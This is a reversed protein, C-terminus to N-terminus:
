HKRAKMIKAAIKDLEAKGNPKLLMGFTTQGDQTGCNEVYDAAKLQKCIERIVKGSAKSTCPPQCGRRFKRGFMSRLSGVGIKRTKNVYLRRCIAAAKYYMYDPDLPALENANCTKILYTWKPLKIINKEKFFM